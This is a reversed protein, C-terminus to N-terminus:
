EKREDVKRQKKNAINFFTKLIYKIMKTQKM